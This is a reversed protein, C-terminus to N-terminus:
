KPKYVPSKASAPQGKLDEARIGGIDAYFSLRGTKGYVDPTATVSFSKADESLTLTFRYGGSEGDELDKPLGGLRILEELSAHRGEFRQAYIWQVSIVRQLMDFAEEENAQIRANFFYARGQSKVLALSERDGVLWEGSVKVLAVQQLSDIGDFKLFVTATEGTVQEGHPEIKDPLDSFSRAFDEELEKLEPASLGELAGRYVSYRFGEVYRRDKLASYFQLTVDSPSAQKQAFALAACTAVVLIIATIRKM